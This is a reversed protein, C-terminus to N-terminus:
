TREPEPAAAPEPEPAEIETAALEIVPPKGRQRKPPRGDDTGPDDKARANGHRALGIGPPKGRQRKPPLGDDNGHDDKAMGNRTRRGLRISARSPGAVAGLM